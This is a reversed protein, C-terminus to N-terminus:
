PKEKKIKQFLYGWRVQVVPSSGLSANTRQVPGYQRKGLDPIDWFLLVNQMWRNILNYIIWRKLYDGHGHLWDEGSM